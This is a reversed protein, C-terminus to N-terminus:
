NKTEPQFEDDFPVFVSSGQSGTSVPHYTTYIWGGPVRRVSLNAPGVNIDQYQHLTMEYIDGMGGGIGTLNGIATYPSAKGAQKLTKLGRNGGEQDGRM